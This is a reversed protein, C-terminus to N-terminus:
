EGLDYADFGAASFAAAARNDEDDLEAAAYDIPQLIDLMQYGIRQSAPQGTSVLTKAYTILESMRVGEDSLLAERDYTPIDMLELLEYAAM